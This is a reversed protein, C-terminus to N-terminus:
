KFNKMLEEVIKKIMARKSLEERLWDADWEEPHKEKQLNFQFAQLIEDVSVGVKRALSLDAFLVIAFKGTALVTSLLFGGIYSYRLIYVYQYDLQFILVFIFYALFAVLASAPILVIAESLRGKLYSLAITKLKKGGLSYSFTNLSCM